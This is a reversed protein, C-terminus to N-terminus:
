GQRVRGALPAAAPPVIALASPGGGQAQVEDHYAELVRDQIHARCEANIPHAIDSYLRVKGDPGPKGRREELPVGCEQCFRYKLGNGAHCRWCHDEIRKTPMTIFLDDSRDKVVKVGHLALADDFVITAFAVLRDDLTGDAKIRTPHLHVTVETVQM